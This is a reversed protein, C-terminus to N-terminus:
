ESAPAPPLSDPADLDARRREDALEWALEGLEEFQAARRARWRPAEFLAGGFMVAGVGFMFVIGPAINALEPNPLVLGLATLGLGMGGMVMGGAVRGRLSSSFTRMRLRYGDRTPEMLVQLNGNSWSHLTGERSVTGRARFLDRMRVVLRDWDEDTLRAPLDVVRSTSLPVGLRRIPAEEVPPTRDLQSAARAVQEPAIGAERGIEQLQHLTMGTSTPSETPLASRSPEDVRTARDFIERVEDDDYRREM